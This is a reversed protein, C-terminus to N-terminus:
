PPTNRRRALVAQEPLSTRVIPETKNVQAPRDACSQPSRRAESERLLAKARQLGPGERAQGCLHKETEIQAVGHARSLVLFECRSQLWPPADAPPALLKRSTLRHRQAFVPSRRRKSCPRDCKAQIGREGFM